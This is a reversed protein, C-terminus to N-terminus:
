EWKKFNIKPQYYEKGKYKHACWLLQQARQFNKLAAERLAVFKLFLLLYVLIALHKGHKKELKQLVINHMYLTWIKTRYTMPYLKRSRKWWIFYRELTIYTYYILFSVFFSLFILWTILGYYCHINMTNRDGSFKINM